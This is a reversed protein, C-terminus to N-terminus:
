AAERMKYKTERRPLQEGQAPRGRKPEKDYYDFANKFARFFDAWKYRFERNLGHEKLHQHMAVAALFLEYLRNFETATVNIGYRASM